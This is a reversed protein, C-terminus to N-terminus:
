PFVHIIYENFSGFVGYGGNINSYMQVPEAFPNTGIPLQEIKKQYIFYEKSIHSLYLPDNSNPFRLVNFKKTLVNGDNGADSVYYTYDSLSVDFYIKYYDEGLDDEWFTEFFYENPMNPNNTSAIAYALSSNIEPVTTEATVNKGDPTTVTLHYTEGAVVPMQTSPIFYIGTPQGSLYVQSLTYTAQGDNITVLANTVPPYENSNVNNYLPQSLSVNVSTTHQPSLLSYVVLESEASPLTIDAEKECSYLFSIILVFYICYAIKNM